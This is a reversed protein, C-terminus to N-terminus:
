RFNLVVATIQFKVITKEIYDSKIKKGEFM